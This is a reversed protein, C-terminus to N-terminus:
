KMAVKQNMYASMMQLTAANIKERNEEIHHTEPVLESYPQIDLFLQYFRSLLGFGLFYHMESNPNFRAPGLNSGLKKFNEKWTICIHVSESRVYGGGRRRGLLPGEM